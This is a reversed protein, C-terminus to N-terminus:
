RLAMDGPQPQRSRGARRLLSTRQYMCVWRLKVGVPPSLTCCAGWVIFLVGPLVHGELTGHRHPAAPAAATAAHAHQGGAAMEHLLVRRM